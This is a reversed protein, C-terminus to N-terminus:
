IFINKQFPLIIPNLYENILSYPLNCLYLNMKLVLKNCRHLFPHLIQDYDKMNEKGEESVAGERERERM